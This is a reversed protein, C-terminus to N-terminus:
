VETPNSNRTGQWCAPMTGGGFIHVFSCVFDVSVCMRACECQCVRGAAGLRSSVIVGGQRRKMDVERENAEGRGRKGEDACPHGCRYSSPTVPPTGM